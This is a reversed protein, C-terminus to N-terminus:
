LYESKDLIRQFKRKWNEFRKRRQWSKKSNIIVRQPNNNRWNNHNKQERKKNKEYYNKREQRAKEPVLGRRLKQNWLYNEKNDLYHEHTYWKQQEKPYPM